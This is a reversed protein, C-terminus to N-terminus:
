MGVRVRNRVKVRARDRLLPGLGLGAVPTPKKFLM